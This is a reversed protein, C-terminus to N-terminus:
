KVTVTRSASLGAALDRVEIKWEGPLDNCSPLITITKKGDTVAYYGSGIIEDGNSAHIKLEVPLVAEVPKGEEDMIQVTVELAKELAANSPADVTIQAIKQPLAL